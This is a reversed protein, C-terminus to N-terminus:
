EKIGLRRNLETEDARREGQWERLAEFFLVTILVGIEVGILLCEM